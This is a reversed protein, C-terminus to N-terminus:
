KPTTTTTTHDHNFSIPHKKDKIQSKVGYKNNQNDLKVISQNSERIVCVKAVKWNNIVQDNVKIRRLKREGFVLFGNIKLNNIIKNFYFQCQIFEGARESVTM